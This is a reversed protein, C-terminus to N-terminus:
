RLYETVADLLAQATKEQYDDSLLKERETKNTIFGIEALAVPMKATRVIYINDGAITGRKRCGLKEAMQNMVIDAFKKSEGTKDSAKYLVQGGNISSERGSSTSNIHVSLFLNAGLKEAMERRPRLYVKKDSLRTYFFGVKGIGDIQMSTINSGYEKVETVSNQDTLHKFKKVISLTLDKEYVGDAMCGNDNGGHGADIVVVKDFYDRIDKFDFFVYSGSVSKELFLSQNTTLTLVGKDGDMEYTLDKIGAGNGSVPYDTFYSASIDPITITYGTYLNDAIIKISDSSHRVPLVLRLSHLKEVAETRDDTEKLYDMLSGSEREARQRAMVGTGQKAWLLYIGAVSFFILLIATLRVAAIEIRKM